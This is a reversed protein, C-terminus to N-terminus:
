NPSLRPADMIQRIVPALSTALAKHGIPTFHSDDRFRFARRDESSYKLLDDLPDHLYCGTDQALEVFRARYDTPDSTGEIFSWMPIPVLLVPTRSGVIWSELIKRLLLWKPNDRSGYDPVPQFKVIKQM